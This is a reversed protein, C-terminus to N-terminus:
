RAVIQWVRICLDVVTWRSDSKPRSAQVHCHRLGGIGRCCCSCCVACWPQKVGRGPGWERRIRRSLSRSVIRWHGLNCLCRALFNGGSRRAVGRCYSWSWTWDNDRRFRRHAYTIFDVLHTTSWSIYWYQDTSTFLSCCTWSSTSTIVFCSHTATLLGLGGRLIIESGGRAKLSGTLSSKTVNMM